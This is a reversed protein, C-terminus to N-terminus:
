LIVRDTALALPSSNSGRLFESCEREGDSRERQMVTVDHETEQLWDSKDKLVFLTINRLHKPM